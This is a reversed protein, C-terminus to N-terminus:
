IQLWGALWSVSGNLIVKVPMRDHVPNGCNKLIPKFTYPVADLYRDNVPREVTNMGVLDTESQVCRVTKHCTAGVHMRALNTAEFSNQTLMLKEVGEEEALRIFPLLQKPFLVCTIYSKADKGKLGQAWDYIVQM